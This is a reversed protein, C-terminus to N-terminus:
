SCAAPWTMQQPPPLRNRAGVKGVCGGAQGTIHGYECCPVAHALFDELVTPLQLSSSDGYMEDPFTWEQEARLVLSCAGQVVRKPEGSNNQM